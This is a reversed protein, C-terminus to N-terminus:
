KKKGKKAGSRPGVTASCTCPHSRTGTRPERDSEAAVTSCSSCKVDALAQALMCASEPSLMISFSEGTRSVFIVYTNTPQVRITEVLYGDLTPPGIPMLISERKM